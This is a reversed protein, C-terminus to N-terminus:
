PRTTTRGSRGLRARRDGRIAESVRASGASRRLGAPSSQPTWTSFSESGVKKSGTGGVDWGLGLSLLFEHEANKFLVYKASVELNDFGSVAQWTPIWSRSSGGLSIRSRSDLAQLDRGSLDIQHTAPAEETGRLKLYLDDCRCRTAVFPDDVALTAPLLAQRDPRPM